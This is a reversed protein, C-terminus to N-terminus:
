VVPSGEFAGSREATDKRMGQAFAEKGGRRM